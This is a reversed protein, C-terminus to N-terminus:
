EAASMVELDGHHCTFCTVETLKSKKMVSRNIAAIQKNTESVMKLFERAVLKKENEDSAFDKPKHCFNCKVGLGGTITKMFDRIEKTSKGTLVQVNKPQGVQAYSQSGIMLGVAAVVAAVLVTKYRNMM